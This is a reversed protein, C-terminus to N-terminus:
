IVGGDPSWERNFVEPHLDRGTVRDANAKETEGLSQYAMWRHFYFEWTYPDLEIARSYDQEALSTEGRYWHIIGRRGHLRALSLTEQIEFESAHERAAIAADIEALADDFSGKRLATVARREALEWDASAARETVPVAHCLQGVGCSLPDYKFSSPLSEERLMSQCGAVVLPLLLLMPSKM